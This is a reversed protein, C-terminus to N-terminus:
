SALKNMIDMLTKVKIEGQNRHPLPISHFWEFKHHSLKEHYKHTARVWLNIDKIFVIIIISKTKRSLNFVLVDVFNCGQLLCFVSLGHFNAGKFNISEVNFPNTIICTPAETKCCCFINLLLHFSHNTFNVHFSAM